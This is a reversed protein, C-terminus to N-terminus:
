INKFGSIDSIVDTFFFTKHLFISIGLKLFFSKAENYNKIQVYIIGLFFIAETQKPNEKLIKELSLIALKFNKEKFFKSFNLFEKKILQIDM